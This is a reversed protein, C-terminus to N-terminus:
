DRQRLLSAIESLLSELTYPKPLFSKAGLDFVEAAKDAAKAGSSAIIKVQPNMRKLARITAPGSMHPMMMDMLVVKIKGMNEAYRAVAETGDNAIIVRYGFGELAVKVTECIPVEDDVVMIMEGHGVPLETSEKAAGQKLVSEDAPLYIEFITGKELESRVDVFGGHSKVIGIVTSLGLGTGKGQAKTTFFPDFIKDIIEPAVGAGTDKVCLRVYCGSKADVAMAAYSDDILVNDVEIAVNGQGSIADRANVSLNMLVQQLQTEDGTVTWLNDPASSKVNISKPFTEKLMNVVERVLHDIRLPVREGEVGRAFGLLQKIIEGGREANKHIVSLMQRNEDGALKARLTTAAILIPLLINNIDHALGAALTGISELRQNRLMQSELRKKDTIDTHIVLVSRPNGDQDRLLTWRNAALIERGERTVHRSEGFWEGKEILIKKAEDFEPTIEKRYLDRINKGVAEEATWGYIREAGKNWFVVRDYLDRVLIADTAQDLLAAQEMLKDEDSKRRTVDRLIVTFLKKSDVEVQSISAEIPFEEGDTRVGFVTGLSGMSRSTTSTQGFNRIHESHAARFCSPIFQDLPQGIAADVPCRFMKEAARNFLVIQQNADVTIIADMASGILSALHMQSERLSSSVRKSDTIDLCSGVYGKFSGDPSFVPVGNDLVWRYEGDHRRLRYEMSFAQRADFAASYIDLCNKYDDPHVGEAWGNGIEQELTRGTFDLWPKNFFYCLKDPGSQWILVPATDAIARFREENERLADEAQKSETIERLLWHVSISEGEQTRSAVVRIASTFPQRRSPKLRLQWEEIGSTHSLRELGSLFLRRDESFIFALLSYGPLPRKRSNLLVAAAHNAEQIIGSADTLLYGDPAFEFIEKYRRQEAKLTFISEILQENQQCLAEDAVEIEEVADQLNDFVQKLWEDNPPSTAIQQRFEDLKEHLAKLKYSSDTSNKKPSAKSKM